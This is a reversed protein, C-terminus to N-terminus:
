YFTCYFTHKDHNAVQVYGAISITRWTIDSCKVTSKVTCRITRHPHDQKGMKKQSLLTARRTTCARCLSCQPLKASDFPSVTRARWRRAQVPAAAWNDLMSLPMQRALCCWIGNWRHCVRQRCFLTKPRGINKYGEWESKAPMACCGGCMLCQAGCVVGCVLCRM